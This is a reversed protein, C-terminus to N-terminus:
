RYRTLVDAGCMQQHPPGTEARNDLRSIAIARLPGVIVDHNQDGGNGKDGASEESAGANSKQDPM